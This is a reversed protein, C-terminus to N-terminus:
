ASSGQERLVRHGLVLLAHDVARFIGEGLRPKVQCVLVCTQEAADLLYVTAFVETKM